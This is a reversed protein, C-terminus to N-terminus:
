LTLPNDRGSCWDRRRIFLHAIRLSRSPPTTLIQGVSLDAVRPDSAEGGGAVYSKNARSIKSKRDHRVRFGQSAPAPSRPKFWSCQVPSM